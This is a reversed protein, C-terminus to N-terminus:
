TAGDSRLRFTSGLRRLSNNAEGLVELRMIVLRGRDPDRRQQVAIALAGGRQVVDHAIFPRQRRRFRLTSGINRSSGWLLGDQTM